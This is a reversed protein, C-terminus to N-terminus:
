TTNYNDCPDLIEQYHILRTKEGEVANDNWHILLGLIVALLSRGRLYGTQELHNQPM